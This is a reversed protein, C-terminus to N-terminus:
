WCAAPGKANNSGLTLPSLPGCTPDSGQLGTTIATASLSYSSTTAATIAITYHGGPSTASTYGMTGGAACSRAGVLTAAYTNCQAYFKEQANALQTLAIHADSRRTKQMYQRYSPYAISTLIGIIVVVIMIEILTFGTSKKMFTRNM